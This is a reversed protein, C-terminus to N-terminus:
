SFAIVGFDSSEIRSQPKKKIFRDSSWPGLLLQAIYETGATLVIQKLGLTDAITKTSCVLGSINGVGTDLLALTRYHKYQMEFIEKAQEKGYRDVCNNYEVWINRVGYLWGETMYYAAHQSDADRRAKTSGLFLTICDDVRPMILEYSGVRLDLLSNGCAGFCLLVREYGTIGDLMIQLEDHLKKPTNHLGSEIWFVDCKIELAQMVYLLETRLTECAIICQNVFYGGVAYPACHAGSCIHQTKM